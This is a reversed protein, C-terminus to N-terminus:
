TVTKRFVHAQPFNLAAADIPGRLTCSLQSNPSSRPCCMLICSLILVPVYKIYSSRAYRQSKWPAPMTLTPTPCYLRAYASVQTATM